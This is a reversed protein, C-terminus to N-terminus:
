LKSRHLYGSHFKLINHKLSERLHKTNKISEDIAKSKAHVDRLATESDYAEVTYLTNPDKADKAIGYVLTKPEDAKSTKVVQEWYPLSTSVQDPKYILEAFVVFPDSSDIIEPRSFEFGDVYELMHVTPAGDLLSNTSMFDIMKKVGETAM